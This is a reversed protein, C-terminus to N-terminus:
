KLISNTLNIKIALLYNVLNVNAISGPNAITLLPPKLSSMELSIRKINSTPIISMPKLASEDIHSEADASYELSVATITELLSNIIDM